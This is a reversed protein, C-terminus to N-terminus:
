SIFKRRAMGALGLLGTVLLAINSPEPVPSYTGTVELEYPINAQGSGGIYGNWNYGPNDVTASIQGLVLIHIDDLNISSINGRGIALLSSLDFVTFAGDPRGGVVQGNILLDEVLVTSTGANFTPATHIPNGLDPPSFPEVVGLSASGHVATSPLILNLQASTVSNGSPLTFSVNSFPSNGYYRATTTVSSQGAATSYIGMYSDNDTNTMSEQVSSNITFQFSDASAAPVVALILTAALLSVTLRM